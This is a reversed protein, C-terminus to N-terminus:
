NSQPTIAWLPAGNQTSHSLESLILEPDWEMLSREISNPDAVLLSGSLTIGRILIFHGGTTFHGPGMLAVLLKGSLLASQVAEPTKEDIPQATLGFASSANEILSLYSGSRKAWHAHDVAWQAMKAPDTNQDTMSNIVMAMTTPGCGYHGIDDTGYPLNAWTPSSQQFYEIELIGGTLINKGSVSKLETVSPDACESSTEYLIGDTFQSDELVESDESFSLSSVYDSLDSATEELFSLVAATGNRIPATTKAFWEPAFFYSAALEAAGICCIALAVILIVPHKHSNPPKRM